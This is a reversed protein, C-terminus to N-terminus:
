EIRKKCHPCVPPEKSAAVQQVFASGLIGAPLAVLGIGLVAAVSGALKGLPTIPTLDGYGVTTFTIIGWWLTAPISSFKDPQAEHEAHYMVTSVILLLVLAAFLTMVLESRKNLLAQSLSRVAVSYRGLKIIRVVRLLRLARGELVSAGGLYFPLISLFDILAMPTLAYRLRGWFPHAFGADATISWIRLAYEVTFVAVSGVELSRFAERYSEEIPVWRAGMEISVTGFVGAAVNLAILGMVGLQTLKAGVTAPMKELSEHVIQRLRAM